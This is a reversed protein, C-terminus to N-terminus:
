ELFKGGGEEEREGHCNQFSGGGTGVLFQAGWRGTGESFELFQAGWMGTGWSLDLFQVGDEEKENVDAGSEVLLKVRETDGDDSASILETRGKVDADDDDDESHAVLTDSKCNEDHSAVGNESESDDDKQNINAGSVNHILTKQLEM